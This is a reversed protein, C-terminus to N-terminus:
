HTSPRLPASQKVPLAIVMCLITGLTAINLTEILAAHVSKGYFATDMPWMRVFFDKIQAPADYLFEPIFEIHRISMVIAAVAVFYFAFRTIRQETSFRRWEHNIGQMVNGVVATM